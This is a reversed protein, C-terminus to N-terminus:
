PLEVAGIQGLLGFADWMGWGEALNGDEVRYVYVGEAEIDRGTAEIDMIPGEHTGSGVYKVVVADGDVYTEEISKTLDPVGTRFMAIMEALAAPGEIPEPVVPDYEVYDDTVLDEVLDYDGRSWVEGILLHAPDALSSDTADPATAIWVEAIRGDEFRFQGQNEVEFPAGNRRDIGSITWRASVLDDEAIMPKTEISLDAVNEQDFQRDAIADIGEITTRGLHLVCDAASAALFAERDLREIADITQQVLSKNTDLTTSM